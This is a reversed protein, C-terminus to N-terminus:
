LNILKVGYHSSNEFKRKPCYGGVFSECESVDTLFNKGVTYFNNDIQLVTNTSVGVHHEM